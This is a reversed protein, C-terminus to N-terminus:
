RANRGPDGAAPLPVATVESHRFTRLRTRTIRTAVVAVATCTLDVICM